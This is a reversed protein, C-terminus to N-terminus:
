SERFDMDSKLNMVFASILEVASTVDSLSVMENPSHMYRNPISVLGIATPIGSRRFADADTGTSRGAGQVSVALDASKAADRLASFITDNVAAGRTLVPGGGLKVDNDAKKGAGPYDTAHTVDIAIVVGPKLRHAANVAGSMTIEEQSAALATVRHTTDQGVQRLVELAIFAGIRNDLSRSVLLDETVHLPVMDIVAPDGVEVKSIADAKDHAGIDIWLESLETVKSRDDPKLLHAAKKGVVGQIDGNHAAIVVRQGVVVQDDWGGIRDVWLFGEDDIYTVIFGIEDIHGEIVVHLDGSERNCAWSNGAVDHDVVPSFDSAEERWRRAARTEYGSPSPIQLLEELFSQQNASLPM